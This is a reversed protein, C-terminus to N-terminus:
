RRFSFVEGAVFPAKLGRKKAGIKGEGERLVILGM